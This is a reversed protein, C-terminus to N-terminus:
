ERDLLLNHFVKRAYWFTLCPIMVTAKRPPLVMFFSKPTAYNCNVVLEAVWKYKKPYNECNKQLSKGCNKGFKGKITLGYLPPKVRSKRTFKQKLGSTSIGLPM